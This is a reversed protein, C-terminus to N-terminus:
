RDIDVKNITCVKHENAYVSGLETTYLGPPRCFLTNNSRLM